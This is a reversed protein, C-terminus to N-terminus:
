LIEEMLLLPWTWLFIRGRWVKGIGLCLSSSTNAAVSCSVAANALNSAKPPYIQSGGFRCRCGGSVVRFGKISPFLGKWSSSNPSIHQFGNWIMEYDLWATLELMKAQLVISSQHNWDRHLSCWRTWSNRPFIDEDFFLLWPLVEPRIPIEQFNWLLKRRWGIGGQVSSGSCRFLFRDLSAWHQDWLPSRCAALHHLPAVDLSQCLYTHVPIAAFRHFYLLSITNLGGAPRTQAVRAPLYGPSILSYPTTNTEPM